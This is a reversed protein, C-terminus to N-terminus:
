SDIDALYLHNNVVMHGEVDGMVLGVKQATKMLFWQFAMEEHESENQRRRFGLPSLRKSRLM